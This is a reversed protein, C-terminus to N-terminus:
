RLSPQKLLLPVQLMQFFDNLLALATTGDVDYDGFAAIPEQNKLAKIIRKSAKALDPMALLDPLQHLDWSWYDALSQQRDQFIKELVPHIHQLSTTEPTFRLM